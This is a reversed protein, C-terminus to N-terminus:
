VTVGVGPGPSDVGFPWRSMGLKQPRSPLFLAFHPHVLETDPSDAFIYRLRKAKQCM